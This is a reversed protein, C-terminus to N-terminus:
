TIHNRMLGDNLHEFPALYSYSINVTQVQQLYRLKATVIFVRNDSLVNVEEDLM